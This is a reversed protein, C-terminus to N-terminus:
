KCGFADGAKYTTFTLNKQKEQQKKYWGQLEEVNTCGLPLLKDRNEAKKRNKKEIDYNDDADKKKQDMKEKQIEEKSKKNSEVPEKTVKGDIKKSKEEKQGKQKKDEAKKRFYITSGYIINYESIAKADELIKDGFYLEQDCAPTKEKKEIEGKIYDVLTAREVNLTFSEWSITSNIVVEIFGKSSLIPSISM